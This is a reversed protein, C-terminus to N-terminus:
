KLVKNITFMKPKYEVMLGKFERIGIQRCRKFVYVGNLLMGTGMAFRLRSEYAVHEPKEDMTYGGKTTFVWRDNKGSLFAKRLRRILRRIVLVERNLEDSLDKASWVGGRDLIKQLEVMDGMLRSRRRAV